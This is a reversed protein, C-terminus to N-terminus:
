VGLRPWVTWTGVAYTVGYVLVILSSWGAFADIPVGKLALAPLWLLARALYIASITVLGLRLLPLRPILGAGSFAYAAWVALVTAIGVTVVAPMLSGREAARALREGAGFFRYWAPGGVIIALHMAAAIASLAGGAVLWLNM